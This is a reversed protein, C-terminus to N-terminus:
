FFPETLDSNNGSTNALIEAALKKSADLIQRYTYEGTSDEVAIHNAYLLSRKFVPVVGGRKIEEDFLTELQDYGSAKTEKTSSWILKTQNTKQNSNITSFHLCLKAIPGRPGNKRSLIPRSLSSFM